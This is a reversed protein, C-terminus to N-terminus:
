DGIAILDEGTHANGPPMYRATTQWRIGSSIDAFTKPM